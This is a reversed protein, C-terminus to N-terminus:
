AETFIQLCHVFLLWKDFKQTNTKSSKKELASMNWGSFIDIVNFVDDSINMQLWLKGLKSQEKEKRKLEDTLRQIEEQAM